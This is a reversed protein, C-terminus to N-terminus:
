YLFEDTLTHLNVMSCEERYRLGLERAEDLLAQDASGPNFIVLSRPFLKQITRLVQKGTEAPVYMSIVDVQDKIADLDPVAAVNCINDAHPNVPIVTWGAEQYKEVARCSIKNSDRSAGIIAITAM